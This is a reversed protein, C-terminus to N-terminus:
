SSLAAALASNRVAKLVTDEKAMVTSHEMSNMIADSIANIDSTSMSTPLANLKELILNLKVSNQDINRTVDIPEFSSGGSGSATRVVLQSVKNTVINTNSPVLFPSPFDDSFIVGNINISHDVLIKWGNMLFYLDGSKDSGGIADGGVTRIAQEFKANDDILSWEKWSSYIDIKVDIESENANIVILKNIGDFAVKHYLEWLSWFPYM